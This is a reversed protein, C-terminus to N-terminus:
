KRNQNTFFQDHIAVTLQTGDTKSACDILYDKLREFDEVGNYGEFYFSCGKPYNLVDKMILETVASPKTLFPIIDTSSSAVATSSKKINNSTKSDGLILQPPTPIDVILQSVWTSDNEQSRSLDKFLQDM